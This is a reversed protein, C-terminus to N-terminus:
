SIRIAAASHILGDVEFGIEFGRGAERTAVSQSFGSLLQPHGAAPAKCIREVVDPRPLNLPFSLTCDKFRFVIHLSSQLVPDNTLVWGKVFLLDEESMVDGHQPSELHWQAIIPKWSHAAFLEINLPNNSNLATQFM